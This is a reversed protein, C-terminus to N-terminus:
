ENYPIMEPEFEETKFYGAAPTYRADIKVMGNEGTASAGYLEVIRVGNVAQVADVLAMNTYEGNFPLNEVYTRVADCCAKKVDNALLLPDFFIKLKCTFLDPEANVLATRVGADKIEAIYAELQTQTQADLPARTGNNEGAVKITVLSADANESVVAHKVVHAAEIQAATMGTTDYTDMDPMLTRGKMFALIKDGYWKPRHPLMADIRKEVEQRHSEFLKEVTWAACAFIHFLVSVVSARSFHADFNEGAKFGFMEAVTENRMFEMAISQKIEETTRM